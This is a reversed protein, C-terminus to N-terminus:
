DYAFGSKVTVESSTAATGLFVRAARSFVPPITWESETKMGVICHDARFQSLGSINKINLEILDLARKKQDKMSHLNLLLRLYDKYTLGEQRHSGGADLLENIRALNDLRIAWTTETKLLPIKGGDLLTRVDMLSEGYSWGLLLAHKMIAILAPMGTWGILLSALGGAEANMQSNGVCYLYNLGERMLLLQNIVSKLNKSDSLKGGLIYELQYDLGTEKEKSLYNPFHDLLYERFLLDSTLGSNKRNIEMKGKKISHRFCLDKKSATKESVANNGCVIQFISKRRLRNLAKLPNEKKVEEVPSPDIVILEGRQAAEQQAQLEQQRKAELEQKRAAEQAELAKMEQDSSNKTREYEEQKSKATQADHHYEYLKGVINTAATEKMFAVAQQYFAEGNNDTLLAYETIKSNTLKLSWPDFCLGTVIGNKPQTNRSFFTQLRSNVRGIAFDGSGYSGDVSFVEYKELLKKEYEGFVSYNGMDAINATQARAGQFRASEIATCILSLFLISILSLFVTIAGKARYRNM